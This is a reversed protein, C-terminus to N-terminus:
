PLLGLQDIPFDITATGASTITVGGATGNVTIGNTGDVTISTVITGGPASGGYSVWAGLTTDYLYTLGNTTNAPTSTPSFTNTPVTTSPNPFTIAM